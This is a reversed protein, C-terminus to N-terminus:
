TELEQGRDSIASVKFSAQRDDHMACGLLLDPINARIRQETIATGLPPRIRWALLAVRRNAYPDGIRPLPPYLWCSVAM